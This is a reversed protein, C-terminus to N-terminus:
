SELHRRLAHAEEEGARMLELALEPNTALKIELALAAMLPDDPTHWVAFHPCGANFLWNELMHRLTDRTILYSHNKGDLTFYVKSGVGAIVEPQGAVQVHFPM